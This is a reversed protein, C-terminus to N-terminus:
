GLENTQIQNIGGITYEVPDEITTINVDRRNLLKIISYLTTTKGSGTPGTVLIMGHPQEYAKKVKLFDGQSFGLNQLSFQRSRESLLRMVVKEGKTIPVISIRLDLKELGADFTIKGDQPSLHEDTQLDAMVKIRTVVQQHLTKPLEIIDHLMGDIRIRILSNKELPEIHIDSARNKYGYDIITNVLEQIPPEENNKSQSIIREFTKATNIAYRALNDLIEEKTTYYVEIDLGTKKTLFKIIEQNSPDSMAVKLGNADQKFAIIKQKKAVIEPIIELTEQDISINKSSFYPLNLIDAKIKGLNEESILDRNLLLSELSVNTKKSEEVIQELQSTEIIKLERLSNLIKEDM